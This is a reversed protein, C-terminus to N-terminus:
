SLNTLIKSRQFLIDVTDPGGDEMIYGWDELYVGDIGLDPKLVQVM